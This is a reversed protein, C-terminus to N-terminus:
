INKYWNILRKIGEEYSTKPEWNLIKKAKSINAYTKKVDGLQMPMEEIVAEKGLTKELAKIMTNLTIPQSNGLNIIEFDLPKNVAKVIGDVIDEVFTYDRSSSGDGFKKIPTGQDMDRTFTFHAMDPRNRQGFAKFFRLVTVNLKCIYHYNFCYLECARKSAAYPSLPKDTRDEESFPVKENDGYVSSSSGFIFQKVHYIKALELLNITGVVNTDRFELPQELSARVGARAALHVITDPKHKEFIEKLINKNRIDARYPHFNKNTKFSETNKEKIKPDYYDNFEDIGIIEHGKSLLRESLHSGIFGAFGTLLTKPM